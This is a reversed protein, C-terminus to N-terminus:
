AGRTPELDARVVELDDVERLLEDSLDEQIPFKEAVHRGKFDDARIEFGGPARKDEVVKGHVVIASEILAKQAAAFAEAPVADRSIAVQVTGTADRVVVFAKGGVSRTRYIWGRLEVEKGTHRGKLIEAISVM